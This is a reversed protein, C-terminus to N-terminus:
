MQFNAMTDCTQCKTGSFNNNTCNQEQCGPAGCSGCRYITHSSRGGSVTNTGRCTGAKAHVMRKARSGSGNSSQRTAGAEFRARLRGGYTDPDVEDAERIVLLNLLYWSIFAYAATNFLVWLIDVNRIIMFSFLIITSLAVGTICYTRKDLVSYAGWCVVIFICLALVPHLSFDKYLWHLTYAVIGPPTLLAPLLIFFSNDQNNKSM